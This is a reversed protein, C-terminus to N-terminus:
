KRSSAATASLKATVEATNPKATEDNSDFLLFTGSLQVELPSSAGTFTVNVDSPQLVWRRGELFIGYPEDDRERTPNQYKLAIGNLDAVTKVNKADDVELALQLYFSNGVYNADLAGKPDDSFLRAVVKGDSADLRLRAAPFLVMTGDITMLSEAAQTTAPSTTTSATSPAFGSRGNTKVVPSATTASGSGTGDYGSEARDCGVLAAGVAAAATFFLVPWRRTM